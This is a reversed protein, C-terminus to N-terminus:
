DEAGVAAAKRKRTFYLGAGGAGIAALGAAVLGTLAGGTVPLEAAAEEPAKQEDAPAESAGDDAPDEDKGDDGPEEERPPEEPDEEPVEGPGDDEPVEEKGDEPPEEESITELCQAEAVGLVSVANGCIDLAANVPVNVQNGSAVGGSGDTSTGGDGGGEGEASNDDSARIVNIVTTCKASSGGLVAVSNGCIDLAADVPVDIQNGSAVGGSGDTSTGGDGGGEGEASNDDSAQIVNIVTTCKASSGGLVAVSNGCIDIAADVPVDIQNGSAVGGSGDTSTGGDGGGEGEASNADSAQIVNIVTTCKASSGGLVAVSNGCIDLAADVPVDIQNGSAVGGSGDTSLTDSAEGGVEEELKEM